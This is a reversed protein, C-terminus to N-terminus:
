PAARGVTGGRPARRPGVGLAKCGGRGRKKSLPVSQLGPRCGGGGVESGWLPGANASGCAVSPPGPAPLRGRGAGEERMHLARRPVGRTRASGLQSGRGARWCRGPHGRRRSLRGERGRKKKKKKKLPFSASFFATKAGEGGGRAGWGPLRLIGSPPRAARARGPTRGAACVSCALSGWERGGGLSTGEGAGRGARLLGVGFGRGLGPRPRGARRRPPQVLGARM